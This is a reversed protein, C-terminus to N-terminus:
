GKNVWEARPHTREHKQPGQLVFQVREPRLHAGLDSIKTIQKKKKDTIKPGEWFITFWIRHTELKQYPNGQPGM